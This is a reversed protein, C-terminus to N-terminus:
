ESVEKFERELESLRECPTGRMQAQMPWRCLHCERRHEELRGGARARREIKARYDVLAQAREEVYKSGRKPADKSTADSQGAYAALAARTEICSQHNCEVFLGEHEVHHATRARKELLAFGPGIVERELRALENACEFHTATASDMGVKAAEAAQRKCRECSRWEAVLQEVVNM